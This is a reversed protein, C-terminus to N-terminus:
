KAQQEKVEAIAAEMGATKFSARQTEIQQDIYAVEDVGTESRWDAYQRQITAASLCAAYEKPTQEDVHKQVAWCIEERWFQKAPRESNELAPHALATLQEPTM